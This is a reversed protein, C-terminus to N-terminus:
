LINDYSHTINIFNNFVHKGINFCLDMSYSICWEPFDQVWREPHVNLYFSSYIQDTLIQILDDTSSMNHENFNPSKVYDRINNRNDWNRGSDTYYPVGVVSLSGDGLLDFDEFTSQSWIEDNIHRSLPRGHMSVTKVDCIKRFEELETRFIRIAEEHSGKAKCLTEYHYGIEHGMDFVAKIIEKKYTKNTYRFYYTSIIELDNELKAMRLANRPMRDVDHRLIVFRESPQCSLYEAM